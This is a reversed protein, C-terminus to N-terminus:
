ADDSESTGGTAVVVVITAPADHLWKAFFAVGMSAGLAVLPASAHLAVVAVMHMVVAGALVLGREAPSLTRPIM